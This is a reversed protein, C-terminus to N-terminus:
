LVSGCWVNRVLWVDSDYADRAPRPVAIPTSIFTDEPRIREPLKRFRARGAAVALDVEGNDRHRRTM